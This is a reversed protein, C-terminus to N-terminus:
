TPLRYVYMTKKAFALIKNYFMAKHKTEDCENRKVRVHASSTPPPSINLSAPRPFMLPPSPSVNLHPPIMLPLPPTLSVSM